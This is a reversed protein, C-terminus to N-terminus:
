APLELSFITSGPVSTVRLEGDMHEALERAITLGLGAGRGDSGSFFPEFVRTRAARRIGPGTDEVSLRATGNDREASVAIETGAPTHTLANDILIRVIQAVRAPDCEVALEDRPTVLRLPSCHQQLAPAFEAAVDRALEGLEVPEPRLELAGSELRSLDLLGTALQTLREVQARTQHVFDRREHEDLDEDELLELFGALSFLPTRLEHSATAIFHKRASDLQALRRQMENFAFAVQGLEDSSDVPVPASFDGAAVQEAAVQLRKVRLTLARAVGYGVLLAMLLALGGAILIQHRILTVNGVVDGLPASFVIVDVVRGARLIPLAAQALRGEPASEFGTTPRGSALAEAAVAFDLSAFIDVEDTSDSVPYLAGRENVGLLTVRAGARDDAQRVVEDLLEAHGSEIAARIRPSYSRADVALQSVREDLMRSQLQPSVYAYIVGISALVLGFFILTLRNRLSRM